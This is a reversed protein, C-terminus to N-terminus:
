KGPIFSTESNSGLFQYSFSQLASTSLMSGSFTAVTKIEFIIVESAIHLSLFSTFHLLHDASVILGTPLKSILM